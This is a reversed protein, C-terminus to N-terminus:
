EFIIKTSNITGYKMNKKCFKLNIYKKFKRKKIKKFTQNDLIPAFREFVWEGATFNQYLHFKKIKGNAIILTYLEEFNGNKTQHYGLYKTGNKTPKATLYFPKKEIGNYYNIIYINGVKKSHVGLFPYPKHSDEVKYLCSIFVEENKVVGWNIIHRSNDTSQKDIQFLFNIKNKSKIFYIGKSLDSYKLIKETTIKRLDSIKINNYLYNFENNNKFTYINNNEIALNVIKNCNEWYKDAFKYKEESLNTAFLNVNLIILLIIIKPKM